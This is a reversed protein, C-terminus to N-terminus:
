PCGYSFFSRHTFRPNEMEPPVCPPRCRPQPFPERDLACEATRRIVPGISRAALKEAAGGGKREDPFVKTKNWLVKFDHCDRGWRPRAAAGRVFREHSTQLLRAHLGRGVTEGFDRRISQLVRPSGFFPGAFEMRVPMIDNNDVALGEVIVLQKVCQLRN